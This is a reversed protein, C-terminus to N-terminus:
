KRKFKVKGAPSKGAAKKQSPDGTQFDACNQALFGKIKLVIHTIGLSMGGSPVGQPSTLVAAAPLPNIAEPLTIVPNNKKAGSINIKPICPHMAKDEFDVSPATMSPDGVSTNKFQTVGKYLHKRIDWNEMWVINNVKWSLKGEYLRELSLFDANLEWPAYTLFYSVIPPNPDVSNAMVGRLYVGVELASFLDNQNLRIEDPIQVVGPADNELVPFTYSNTRNDIPVSLVLDSLMVRANGKGAAILQKMLLNYEARYNVKM